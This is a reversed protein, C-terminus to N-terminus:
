DSSAKWPWLASAAVSAVSLAALMCLWAFAAILEANGEQEEVRRLSRGALVFGGKWATTVAAVRVGSRPQWTVARPCGPRAAELVGGPPAPSGGDLSANTALVAHNSDFVIVFVALSTALDVSAAADVVSAPAAGADLREAADEALRYQPDNAGGRLGQQVELYVLGCSLTALVALPLFLALARRVLERTTGPLRAALERSGGSGPDGGL